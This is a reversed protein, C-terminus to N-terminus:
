DTHTLGTVIWVVASAIPPGLDTRALYFGFLGVVVVQWLALERSRLLMAVIVFLFMVVLAALSV